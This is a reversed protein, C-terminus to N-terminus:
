SWGGRKLPRHLYPRLRPETRGLGELRFSLALAPAPLEQRTRALVQAKELALLFQRGPAVFLREALDANQRARQRDGLAELLAEVASLAHVCHPPDEPGCSTCSVAEEGELVRPLDIQVCQPHGHAPLPSPGSGRRLEHAHVVLAQGEEPFLLQFEGQAFLRPVALERVRARVQQLVQVLPVLRADTPPPPPVSDHRERALGQRVREAEQELVTWAAQELLARSHVPFGRPLELTGDLLSVVPFSELTYLRQALSFGRPLFLELESLRLRRLYAVQHAELWRQVDVRTRPSEPAPASGPPAAKERPSLVGLLALGLAVAHECTGTELFLPCHCNLDLGNEDASVRVALRAGGRGRVMGQLIDAEMEWHLVREKAVLAQGKAYVEDGALERLEERTLWRGLWPGLRPSSKQLPEKSM